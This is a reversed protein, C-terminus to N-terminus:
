LALKDNETPFWDDQRSPGAITYILPNWTNLLLTIRRLDESNKFRQSVFSHSAHGQALYYNWTELWRSKPMCSVCLKEKEM